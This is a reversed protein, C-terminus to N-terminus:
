QPQISGYSSRRSFDKVAEQDERSQATLAEWEAATRCVKRIIQSGIRKEEKCVRKEKQEQESATAPQAILAAAFIAGIARRMM